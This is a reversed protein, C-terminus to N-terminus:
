IVKKTKECCKLMTSIEIKEEWPSISPTQAFKPLFVSIWVDAHFDDSPSSLLAPPNGRGQLGQMIPHRCLRGRRKANLIVFYGKDATM